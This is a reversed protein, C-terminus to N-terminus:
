PLDRPHVQCAQLEHTHLAIWRLAEEDDLARFRTMEDWVFGDDDSAWGSRSSLWDAIVWATGAPDDFNNRDENLPCAWSGALQGVMQEVVYAQLDQEGGSVALHVLVHRPPDGEGILAGDSIEEVGAALPGAARLVDGAADAFLGLVPANAAHVCVAVGAVTVCERPPAQDRVVSHVPRAGAVGILLVPVLLVSLARASGVASTIARGELWRGAAIVLCLATVTFFLLRFAVMLPNEFFGAAAGGWTWVPTVSRWATGALPGVLVLGYMATVGGIVAPLRPLATGILGGAAVFVALTPLGSALLL